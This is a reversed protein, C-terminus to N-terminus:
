ENFLAEIEAVNLIQNYIRVDDIGGTFARDNGCNSGNSDLLNRIGLHATGDLISSLGGGSGLISLSEQINNVYITVRDLGNNSDLSGDYNLFEVNLAM